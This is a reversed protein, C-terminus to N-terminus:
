HEAKCDASLWKADFTSTTSIPHGNAVANMSVKGAYHEPSDFRVAMHGSGQVRGTCVMDASIGDASAKMNQMKCYKQHEKAMAPIKDMAAESPTMCHTVTVADGGVPLHIGMAHMKAIQAPPIQPMGAMDMRITIQWESPKAHLALAPCSGAALFCISFIVHAVPTKM